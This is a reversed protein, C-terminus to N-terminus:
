NSPWQILPTKVPNSRGRGRIFLTGKYCFHGGQLL